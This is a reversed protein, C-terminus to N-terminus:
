DQRHLGGPDHQNRLRSEARTGGSPARSGDVTVSSLNPDVGRIKVYVIQGEEVAGAVGPVRQLLNGLNEDAVNGFADSSLVNKVNASKRQETIASANGEREGPVVFADLRYVLSTLSVDQVASRGAEVRTSITQPDLGAYSVSLAYTGAPVQSFSYRGDRSTLTSIGSPNLVVEAAELYASTAQNSVRGSITGSQRGSIEGAPETAAHIGTAPALALGLWAGLLTIPNKPKM